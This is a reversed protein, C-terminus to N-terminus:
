CHKYFVIHVFPCHFLSLVMFIALNKIPSKNIILATCVRQKIEGRVEYELHFGKRVVSYDSIMRYVFVNNLKTEKFFNIIENFYVYKIVVKNGISLIDTPKGECFTQSHALGNDGSYEDIQVYDNKCQDNTRTFTYGDEMEFDSFAIFIKNGKPALITWECNMNNPYPSPYNLSEIAGRSDNIDRKCELIYFYILKLAEIINIIINM